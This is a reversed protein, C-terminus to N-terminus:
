PATMKALSAARLAAVTADLDPPLPSEFTLCEGTRPHRFALHAAHLAPRELGLLAARSAAGRSSPTRTGGYTSDGAIPHGLAALHVRIQHTRGTHIRVRLLAAGDFSELVRYTSRAARGRVARVSMRKRDRPDRGIPADVTGERVRPVGLVVALYEKLVSRGSFQLALDRHAEDSKAV